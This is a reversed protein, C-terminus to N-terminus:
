VLCTPQKKADLFRYEKYEGCNTVTTVFTYEYKAQIGNVNYTLKLLASYYGEPLDFKLFYFACQVLSNPELTYNGNMINGSLRRKEFSLVIENQPNLMESFTVSELTLGTVPMRGINKIQVLLYLVNNVPLQWNYEKPCVDHKIYLEGGDYIMVKYREKEGYSACNYANIFAIDFATQYEQLTLQNITKDQRYVIYAMILSGAFGIYSGFFSLWDAVTLDEDPDKVPYNAFFNVTVLFVCLLILLWTITWLLVTGQKKRDRYIGCGVLFLITPVLIVLAIKIYGLM